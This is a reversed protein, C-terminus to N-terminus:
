APPAATTAAHPSGARGPKGPPFPFPTDVFTQKRAAAPWFRGRVAKKAVAARGAEMRVRQSSSDAGTSNPTRVRLVPAAMEQVRVSHRRLLLIRGVTHGSDGSSPPKSNFELEERLQERQWATECRNM